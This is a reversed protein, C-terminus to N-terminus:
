VMLRYIAKVDDEHLQVFGGVAGARKDGYCANHAMKEIDKEDAGLEAFNGPMGISKLFAKFAAIGAKATNEPHMFDMPCGWVRSAVQAFRMVNHEMNYTMWAPFVVALGAGHACDYVASLEHEIDHSAWDQGRGVGVSNNHAMMGAWMINARAQYDDPNAIVKPAEHVMASLLGEILRDTVEVDETNTFYREFLHAMIDSIGCATQYAPLTQTLVPNLISFAPRLAEGSAGRKFMGEEKTIVSDPSGESGAAAITLVTGIPLAKTVPKGQYFDWFDGDYVTGAAIAKSSDITSGGGVALVFDIKEKRCLEIGEYVLGSLPNPHVGGLEIYSIGEAELSAKVRGLLGSRVVSGGGYHILVKSGGFRRVYKGANNEQEAGFAFYTPAYFTFNNM